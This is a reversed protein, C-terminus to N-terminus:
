SGEETEDLMLLNRDEACQLAYSTAVDDGHSYWPHRRAGQPTIAEALLMGFLWKRKLLPEKAADRRAKQKAAHQQRALAKAAPDLELVARKERDRHRDTRQHAAVKDEGDAPPFSYQVNAQKTTCHEGGPTRVSASISRVAHKGSPTPVAAAAAVGSVIAPAHAAVWAPGVHLNRQLGRRSAEAADEAPLVVEFSTDRVIERWRDGHTTEHQEREWRGPTIDSSLQLSSKNETLVVFAEISEALHRLALKKVYACTFGAKRLEASNRDVGDLFCRWVKAHIAKEGVMKPPRGRGRPQVPPGPSGLAFEVAAPETGEADMMEVSPLQLHALHQQQAQPGMVGIEAAAAEVCPKCKRRACPNKFQRPSFAEKPLYDGCAACPYSMSVRCALDESQNARAREPARGVRRSRASAVHCQSSPLRGM